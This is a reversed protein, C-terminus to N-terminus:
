LASMCMLLYCQILSLQISSYFDTCTYSYMIYVSVGNDSNLVKGLRMSVQAKLLALQFDMQDQPVLFIFDPIFINNNCVTERYQSFISNILKLM